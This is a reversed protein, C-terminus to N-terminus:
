IGLEECRNTKDIHYYKDANNATCHWFLGDAEIFLVPNGDKKVIIDIEKPPIIKRNESTHNIVEFDGLSSVFDAIEKEFLSTDNLVPHCNYCRM